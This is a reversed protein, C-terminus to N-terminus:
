HFKQTKKMNEKNNHSKRNTIIDQNHNHRSSFLPNKIGNNNNNDVTTTTLYSSLWYHDKIDPYYLANEHNIQCNRFFNHWIREMVSAIESGRKFDSTYSPNQCHNLYILGQNLEYLKKWWSLSRMQISTKSTIFQAAVGSAMPITYFQKIDRNIIALLKKSRSQDGFQTSNQFLYELVDMM